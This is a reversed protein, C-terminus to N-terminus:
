GNSFSRPSRDDSGNATYADPETGGEDPLWVYLRRWGIDRGRLAVARV